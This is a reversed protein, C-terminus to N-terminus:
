STPSECEPEEETHIKADSACVEIKKPIFTLTVTTVDGGRARVVVEICGNIRKGDMEVYGSTSSPGTQLKFEHLESERRYEPKM